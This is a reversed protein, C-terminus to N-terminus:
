RENIRQNEWYMLQYMRQIVDTHKKKDDIEIKYDNNESVCENTCASLRSIIINNIRKNQKKNNIMPVNTPVNM